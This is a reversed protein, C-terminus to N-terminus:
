LSEPRVMSKYGCANCSPQIEPYEAPMCNTWFSGYFNFFPKKHPIEGAIVQGWLCAIRAGTEKGAPGDRPVACPRDPQSMLENRFGDYVCCDDGNKINLRIGVAECGSIQGIPKLIAYLCSKWDSLNNLEAYIKCLWYERGQVTNCQDATVDM